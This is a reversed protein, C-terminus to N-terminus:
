RKCIVRKLSQRDVKGNSTRSIEAICITQTPLAYPHVLLKIQSLLELKEEETIQEGEIVLVVADGLKDNPISSVVMMESRLHTISKEIEEPMIKIGGSNIVNDYRGLWRFEKSNLVEVIDNTVLRGEFLYPNDITLCGRVDVNIKTHGIITYFDKRESGNVRRLAIHSSTETMGYTAYIEIPLEQVEKELSPSVEGGGVIISKVMPSNKLTQLSHHLQFPTLATFDIYHNFPQIGSQRQCSQIFPHNSFPNSSPEVTVLNMGSVFARVIMMRGAIYAAPLCLLASNQSNLNFFNCTQTASYELWKKKLKINKPEGTSGSTKVEIYDVESLWEQIFIYIDREWMSTSQLSVKEECLKLLAQQTYHKNNITLM